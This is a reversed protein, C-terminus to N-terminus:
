EPANEMQLYRCAGELKLLIEKRHLGSSFGGLSHKGVVRHCPVLIPLPNKKCAQGVARALNRNGLTSALDSYAATQGYPIRSMACLIEHYLTTPDTKRAQRLWVPKGNQFCLNGPFTKAKGAFYGTLPTIIWDLAARDGPGELENWSIDTVASSDGSIWLRGTPTDIWASV